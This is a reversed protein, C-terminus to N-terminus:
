AEKTSLKTQPAAPMASSRGPHRGSVPAAIHSDPCAPALVKLAERSGEAHLADSDMFSKELFSRPAIGWERESRMLEEIM